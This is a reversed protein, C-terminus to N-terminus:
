CFLSRNGYRRRDEESWEEMLHFILTAFKGDSYRRKPNKMISESSLKRDKNSFSLPGVFLFYTFYNYVFSSRYYFVENRINSTESLSLVKGSVPIYIKGNKSIEDSYPTIDFIVRNSSSLGNWYRIPFEKIVERKFEVMKEGDFMFKEERDNIHPCLLDGRKIKVDFPLGGQILNNGDPDGLRSYRWIKMNKVELNFNMYEFLKARTSIFKTTVYQIEYLKKWTIDFSDPLFEFDKRCLREWLKENHSVGLFWKNALSVYLIDKFSLLSIIEIWCDQM